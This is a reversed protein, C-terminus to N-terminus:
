ASALAVLSRGPLELTGDPQVYPAAEAELVSRLEAWQETSTSAVADAITPSLERQVDIWAGVSPHRHIVDIADTTVEVFGADYLHERLRDAPALSSLGASGSPAPPLVGLERLRDRGVTVWPNREAVDWVALAARGGPRLVRRTERLGADPDALLMFGWRCLVADVSATELDIWEADLRRFEAEEESVGMEKARAGAIDVMEQVADSSILRGGPRIRELARLGLSGPGAALELVTEGPKLDAADLLWATVPEGMADIQERHREWGAAARSWSRLEANRDLASM